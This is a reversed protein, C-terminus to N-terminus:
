KIREVWQSRWEPPEFPDEFYLTEHGVKNDKFEMIYVVNVPRGNYTIVYETIWLSGEGRTRLIKFTVKTPYYARLEYLNCEGSIREGSQPFEVILHYIDHARDLDLAVTADWHRKLAARIEQNNL